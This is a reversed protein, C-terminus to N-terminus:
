QPLLMGIRYGTLLNSYKWTLLWGSGRKIKQTPSITGQPFDIADFDTHMQLVFDRVQAVNEGFGYHWSEMGQSRYGVELRIISGPPPNITASIAGDSVKVPLNQGNARMVLDDYIAQPVPLALKLTVPEAPSPSRFVYAGSFVVTYTPFWLLGKQRQELRLAVNVRSQELALPTNVTEEVIKTTTGHDTTERVQKPATRSTYAMPPTQQQPAGWTSAVRSELDSDASQTRFMISSGLFIWAATTCLFIAIVPLVNRSM